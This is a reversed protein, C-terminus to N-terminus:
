SEDKSILGYKRLKVYLSQRSLGLMDAAAVRNNRTLEIATEICIKEIVETTEAVIDKLTSSGVLEVINTPKADLAPPEQRLSQAGSAARIILALVPEFRDTLWTASIEVPVHVGLSSKIRTAYSRLHGARRANDILMRMDVTGRGFFNALSSGRVMDESAVDAHDLFTENASLINGDRDTFVIADVGSDFLQRLNSVMRLDGVSGLESDLLRLMALQEGSARFLKGTVHLDRGSIRARTAPASAGAGQAQGDLGSMLQERRFDVLFEHIERGVMEARTTGIMTAANYNVDVVSLTSLSVLVVADATFDMLVRYRTDIERQAEYERELAIQANLLQQQFEIIPRQDEGLLLVEGSRPLPLVTYRVPITGNEGDVHTLELWQVDDVPAGNKGRAIGALCETLRADSPGDLLEALRAGPWDATERPDLVNPSVVASRVTGQLSILLYIDVVSSLAEAPIIDQLGVTMAVM